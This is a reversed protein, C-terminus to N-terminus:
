YNIQVNLPSFNTIKKLKKTISLSEPHQKQLHKTSQVNAPQKLKREFFFMKELKVVLWYTNTQTVMRCPTYIRRAMRVNGKINKPINHMQIITNVFHIKMDLFNYNESVELM